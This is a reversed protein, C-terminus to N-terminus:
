VRDGLSSWTTTSSIPVANPIRQRRWLDDILLAENLTSAVEAVFIRYDANVFEQNKNSYYSHMAHGLEHALTFVDNLNGQYNMLVHPAGWLHGLFLRRQNEATRWGTM